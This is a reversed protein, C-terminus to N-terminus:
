KIAIKYFSIIILILGLTLAFCCFHDLHKDFWRDFREDWDSTEIYSQIKHIM